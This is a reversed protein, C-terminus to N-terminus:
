FSKERRIRDILEKAKTSGSQDFYAQLIRLASVRDGQKVKSKAYIFWSEEQISDITNAQIAWYQAKAYKARKYYYRALFIADDYSHTKPFRQEIERVAKPNDASNMQLKLKKKKPAEVVKDKISKRAGDTASDKSKKDKSKPDSIAIVMHKDQVQTAQHNAAGQSSIQIPNSRSSSPYSSSASAQEALKIASSQSSVKKQKSVFDKMGFYIASPLTILAVVSIAIIKVRKAVRKKHYRLWEEELKEIDYM